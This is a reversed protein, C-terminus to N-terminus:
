LLSRLLERGSKAEPCINNESYGWYLVMCSLYFMTLSHITVEMIKSSELVSEEDWMELICRFGINKKLM